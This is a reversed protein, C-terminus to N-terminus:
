HLLIKKVLNTNNNELNVLLIENHASPIDLVQENLGAVANMEKNCIVRGQTNRVLLVFQEDEEVQL